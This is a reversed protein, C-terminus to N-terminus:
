KFTSEDKDKDWAKMVVFAIMVAVVTIAVATINAKSFLNGM